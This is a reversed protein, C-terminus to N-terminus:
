QGCRGGGFLRGVVRVPATAVRLLPRGAVRERFSVADGVSAGANYASAVGAGSTATQRPCAGNKCDASAPFDNARATTGSVLMAAALAAALFSTKV